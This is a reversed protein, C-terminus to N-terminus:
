LVTILSILAILVISAVPLALGFIENQMAVSRTFPMTTLGTQLQIHKSFKATSDPSATRATIVLGFKAPRAKQLLIFTIRHWGMTSQTLKGNTGMGGSFAM